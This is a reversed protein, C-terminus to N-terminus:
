AADLSEEYEVFVGVRVFPRMMRNEDKATEERLYGAKIWDKLLQKIRKKDKDDDPNLGLVDGVVRGAWTNSRDSARFNGSAIANQVDRVTAQSITESASQWVWPVVVGVFDGEILGDNNGLPVSTLKFWERAEAPPALNGKGNEVSFYLRPNGTIGAQAAEAASMQNLVRVSRAASILASAGRADEATVQAGGTKRSHHVLSIACGTIEAIRSFTKAVRDIANNDNESVQHASVFPDIMLVDVKFERIAGILAGVVPEAIIAGDRAEKALIIQMDRGSDLFLRGGLDAQTIGYQKCIAAVRRILEEKPDEGNWYWVRLPESLASGTLNRGSAMAVADALELSSKGVGGPSVTASLFKRILHRGYLWQRRPIDEPDVWDFPSPKIRKAQVAQSLQSTDVTEVLDNSTDIFDFDKSVDDEYGIAQFFDGDTRDACHAHLCKFHGKLHGRTGARFWVTSGNGIEGGTHDDNWPCQIALSGDRMEEIVLGKDALFDAVPDEIDLDEGRTRTSSSIERMPETGFQVELSILLTELQERSIEPIETPLGGVWDYPVGSPHTGCAVFQQGNALFEIMGHEVHLVRKSMEDELRFVLLCKTSNARRRIPLQVGLEIAITNKVDEVLEQDSIDLDLAKVRRCIVLMGYDPQKAWRQIEQDSAHHLTWDKMGVALGDKNYVSPTKGLQKLKSTPAIEANPNAVCPLLDTGLDLVKDFHLWEAETAGYIM